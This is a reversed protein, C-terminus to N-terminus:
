NETERLKKVLEKVTALHVEISTVEFELESLTTL